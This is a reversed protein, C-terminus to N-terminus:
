TPNKKITTLSKSFRSINIL